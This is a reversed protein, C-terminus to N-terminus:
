FEPSANESKNNNVKMCVDEKLKKHKSREITKLLKKHINYELEM